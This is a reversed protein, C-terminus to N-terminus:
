GKKQILYPRGGNRAQRTFRWIDHVLGRKANGMADLVESKLANAKREAQDLEYLALDLYMGLDGLEIEQDPDIDPHIERVTQYTNLAGDFDPQTDTELYTRFREVAELNVDQEFSDAELEYEQYHSGSFLTAVYAHKFNFTQLYWNVQTRYYAPVGNAWDDEYRATKIELIGFNGAQDEIIADPNALQWPRERHAWTGVNRHVILDPHEQEFKDIVVPELRTGWEAAESSGVSDEIRGTKKAWLTFPSTWPNCNTIAAVDSGGIGTKRLAHWQPSNNEFNGVRVADGIIDPLTALNQKTM